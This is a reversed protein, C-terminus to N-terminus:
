TLPIFTPVCSSLAVICGWVFSTDADSAQSVLWMMLSVFDRGEGLVKGTCGPRLWASFIVAYLYHVMVKM